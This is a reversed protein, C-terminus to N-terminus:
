PGDPGATSEELYQTPAVGPAGDDTSGVPSVNNGHMCGAESPLLDQQLAHAMGDGDDEVCTAGGAHEGPGLPAGTWSPGAHDLENLEKGEQNGDEMSGM